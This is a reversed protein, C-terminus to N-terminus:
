GPLMKNKRTVTAHTILYAIKSLIREEITSDRSVTELLGWAEEITEVKHGFGELVEDMVEGWKPPLKDIKKPGPDTIKAVEYHRKSTVESQRKYPANEDTEYDIFIASKGDPDTMTKRSSEPFFEWAEMVKNRYITIVNRPAKVTRAAIWCRLALMVQIQDNMAEKLRKGYAEQGEMKVVRQVFESLMKDAKAEAQVMSCPLRKQLELRAKKPLSGLRSLMAVDEHLRHLKTPYLTNACPGTEFFPISPMDEFASRPTQEPVQVIEEQTPETIDKKVLRDRQHQAINKKPFRINM